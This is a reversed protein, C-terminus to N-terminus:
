QFYNALSGGQYFPYFNNQNPGFTGQNVTSSNLQDDYFM